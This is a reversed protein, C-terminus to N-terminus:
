TTVKKPSGVKAGPFRIFNNTILIAVHKSLAIIVIISAIGFAGSDDKYRAYTRFKGDLLLIKVEKLM